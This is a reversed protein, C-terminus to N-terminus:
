EYQQALIKIKAFTEVWSAESLGLKDRIQSPEMGQRYDRVGCMWRLMEFSIKTLLGAEEAIDALVYELNRATCDFILGEKPQYQALYEDLLGMWEPDLAIRRERYVTRAKHKILVIPEQRNTRDIHEQRLSVAESKKIGTDLILRLLMVPRPDPKEGRRLGRAYMLAADLEDATLITALPAPGSRQLVAKAPDHQIAGISHM